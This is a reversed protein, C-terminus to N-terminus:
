DLKYKCDWRRHKATQTCVAQIAKSSSIVVWVPPAQEKRTGELSAQKAQPSSQAAALTTRGAHSQLTVKKIPLM